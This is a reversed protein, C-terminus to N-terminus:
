EAPILRSLIQCLTAAGTPTFNVPKGLVTVTISCGEDANFTEWHEGYGQVAFAEVQSYRAKGAHIIITEMMNESVLSVFAEDGVTYYTPDLGYLEVFGSWNDDRLLNYADKSRQDTLVNVVNEEIANKTSNNRSIGFLISFALAVVLLLVLGLYVTSYIFDILKRM